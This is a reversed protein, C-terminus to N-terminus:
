EQVEWDMWEPVIWKGTAYEEPYVAEWEDEGLWQFIIGRAADGGYILSHNEDFVVPAVGKDGGLKFEVKEIAKIWEDTNNIDQVDAAAEKLVYLTNYAPYSIFGPNNGFKALHDEVFQLTNKTLPAPGGNPYASTEFVCKGGTQNYFEPKLAPGVPGVIAADVKLDYWQKVFAIGDDTVISNIIVQAGADVVKKFTASYDITGMPFYDRYVIELGNEECVRAAEEAIEKSYVLDVAIIAVKSIGYKPQLYNTIFDGTSTGQSISDLTGVRFYYKYRDYDEGINNTVNISAAGTGLWITKYRAWRDMAGLVAGSSMGGVIFDVNERTCLKQIATIMKEAKAESDQFILEIQRGAIGGDANIEEAAMEVAQKIWEGTEQQFPGVVGIKWVNAAFSSMTILVVLLSMLLVKKM